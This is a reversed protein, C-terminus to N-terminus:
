IITGCTALPMLEIDPIKEDLDTVNIPESKPSRSPSAAILESSEDLATSRVFISLPQFPFSLIGTRFLLYKLFENAGRLLSSAVQNASEKM